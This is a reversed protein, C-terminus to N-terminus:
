YIENIELGIRALSFTCEYWKVASNDLTKCVVAGKRTRADEIMMYIGENSGFQCHCIPSTTIIELYKTRQPNNIEGGAGVYEDWVLGFDSEIWKYVDWITIDAPEFYNNLIFKGTM